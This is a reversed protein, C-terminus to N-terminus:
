RGAFFARATQIMVWMGLLFTVSFPVLLAVAGWGLTGRNPLLWKGPDGPNYYISFTDGSQSEEYESQSVQKVGRYSGNKDPYTFNINYTGDKIEKSVVTGVDKIYFRNREDMFGVKSTKSIYFEYYQWAFMGALGLLLLGVLVGTIISSKSTHSVTTEM